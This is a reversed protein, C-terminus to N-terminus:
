RVHDPGSELRAILVVPDDIQVMVIQRDEAGWEKCAVELIHWIKCSRVFCGVLERGRRALDLRSEHPIM